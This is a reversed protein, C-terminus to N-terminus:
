REFAPVEAGLASPDVAKVAEAQGKLLALGATPILAPDICSPDTLGLAAHLREPGTGGLALVHRFEEGDYCVRTQGERDFRVFHVGYSEAVDLEAALSADGAKAVRVSARRALRDAMTGIADFIEPGIARAPVTRLFLAAYGIGLSEHGPADRFYEVLAGLKPAVGEDLPYTRVAAPRVYGPRERRHDYVQLYGQGEGRVELWDGPALTAQQPARDHASARLPSPTQVLAVLVAAASLLM